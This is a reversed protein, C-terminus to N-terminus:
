VLDGFFAHSRREFIDMVSRHPQETLNSIAPVSETIDFRIVKVSSNLPDFLCASGYRGDDRPLGCSGVNVFTVNKEGRIFPRHTNGMFIFQANSTQLPLDSDPYVYGFTPDQPSGHICLIKADGFTTEFGKEWSSLFNVQQSTLHKKIASLMYMDDHSSSIMENLLMYEHNGLVCRVSAGMLNLCDVVKLSPIYGVADGLFIFTQAGLQRLKQLAIEFAVVNGHADSLIGIKGM